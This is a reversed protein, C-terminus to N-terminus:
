VQRIRFIIVKSNESERSYIRESIRDRYGYASGMVALIGKDDCLLPIRDKLDKQIGMESLLKKIKKSGGKLAIRDGNERFRICLNGNVYLPNIWLDTKGCESIHKEEICIYRNKYIPYISKKDELMVTLPKEKLRETIKKLFLEKGTRFLRIGYGELYVSSNRVGGEQQLVPKIFSYPIRKEDERFIRDIASYMSELRIIEPMSFFNNFDTKFGEEVATWKINKETENKIYNDTMQMKESLFLVSKEFGPFIKGAEPLLSNRIRNRLYSEDDNSKDFSYEICNEDLYELIDKKSVSILPRIIEENVPPIGKLGSAGCGSFLRMVVTEIQDDLNHGMAIYDCNHDTFVKKLFRYRYKRAAGETGLEETEAKISGDDFGKILNINRLRCNELGRQMEKELVDSERLAHNFYATIIELNYGSSLKWLIDLLATSDPGSSFGILIKNKRKINITKNLYQEVAATILKTKSETSKM